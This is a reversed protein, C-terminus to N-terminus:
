RTIFSNPGIAKIAIANREADTAVSKSVDLKLVQVSSPKICYIDMGEPGIRPMLTGLFHPGKQGYDPVSKMAQSGPGDGGVRLGVSVETGDTPIKIDTLGTKSVALGSQASLVDITRGDPHRQLMVAHPDIPKLFQLNGVCKNTVNVMDDSSFVPAHSAKDSFIVSAQM